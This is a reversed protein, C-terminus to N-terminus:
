TTKTHGSNYQAEINNKSIMAIVGIRDMMTTTKDVQIGLTETEQIHNFPVKVSCFDPNNSNVCEWDVYARYLIVSNDMPEGNIYFEPRSYKLYIINLIITTELKVFGPALNDVPIINLLNQGLTIKETLNVNNIENGDTDMATVAIFKERNSKLDNYSDTGNLIYLFKETDLLYYLKNEYLEIKIDNGSSDKASYKFICYADNVIECEPEQNLNLGQIKEYGRDAVDLTRYKLTNRIIGINDNFQSGVDSMYINYSAVDPVKVGGKKSEDFLIMISNRSNPMNRIEFGTIPPPVDNDKILIAFKITVNEKTISQSDYLDTKYDTKLCLRFRSEPISCARYSTAGSKLYDIKKFLNIDNLNEDLILPDNNADLFKNYSRVEYTIGSKTASFKAFEDTSEVDIDLNNKKLVCQCDFDPSLACDEVSQVFENLYKEERSDDCNTSLEVHVGSNKYKLGVDNNFEVIKSNLCDKKGLASVRCENATKNMFVSLNDILSFDFPVDVTFSPNVYYKGLIGKGEIEDRAVEEYQSIQTITGSYGWGSALRMVKEVYEFDPQGSCGSTKSSKKYDGGGNYRRLAAEWSNYTKDVSKQCVQSKGANYCYEPCVYYVPRNKLSDYETKLIGAGVRIQCQPDDLFKQVSSCEKIIRASHIKTVVQTLGYAGATSGAKFNGKSEQTILGLFIEAPIGNKNATDIAYQLMGISELNKKTTEINKKESDTLQVQPNAQPTTAPDGSVIAQAKGVEFTVSKIINENRGKNDIAKGKVEYKIKVDDTPALLVCKNKARMSAIKASDTTFSCEIEINVYKKGSNDTYVDYFKDTEYGYGILGSSMFNPVAAVSACETSPNEITTIVKITKDASVEKQSVQINTIKWEDNDKIQCNVTNVSNADTICGKHRCFAIMKRNNAELDSIYSYAVGSHIAVHKGNIDPIFKTYQWSSAAKPSELRGKGVYIGTHGYPHGYSTPSTSSFIDGPLLKMNDLEKESLMALDDMCSVSTICKFDTNRKYILEVTPSVTNTAFNYCKQNGNGLPAAMSSGYKFVSTVFTGCQLGTSMAKEPPQAITNKSWSVGIYKDAFAAVDACNGTGVTYSNGDSYTQINEVYKKISEDDKYEKSKFVYYEYKIDSVASIKSGYIGSTAYKFDFPTERNFNADPNNELRSILSKYMYQVFSERYDPFCDRSESNWLPYVYNKCEPIDEEGQSTYIAVAGNSSFDQLADNVAYQASQELYIISKDGEIIANIMGSQYSGLYENESKSQNLFNIFIFSSILGFIIALIVAIIYFQGRRSNKWISNKKKYNM